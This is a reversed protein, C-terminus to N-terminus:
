MCVNAAGPTGYNAATGYMQAAVANCGNTTLNDNDTTNLNGPKVQKSTGDPQTPIATIADLVTTGDAAFVTLTTGLAFTFTADVAPLGGNTAADTGHAFVAYGGAAVSKCNVSTVVNIGAAGGKVGLGNLDFATAGTNALEFWEQTGDTGTGAANPLVESIVLQGAAPAVIARPTNGDLCQGPGVVAPCTTNAAGPTGLNPGSAEYQASGNCFNSPDDNAAADTAAPDLALSAGSTSTTWTVQDITTGGYVLQVDPTTTPNLSFSFTGLTTIGGNMAMDASRAFVAYQGATMHICQPSDLVEPKINNDNARDLGVGNLDVDKMAKVEFWQAVTASLTKPKPM